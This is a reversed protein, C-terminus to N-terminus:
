PEWLLVSCQLGVLACESCTTPVCLLQRRRSVAALLHAAAESALGGTAAVRVPAAAWASCELAFASCLEASDPRPKGEAIAADFARTRYYLVHAAQQSGLEFGQVGQAVIAAGSLQYLCMATVLPALLPCRM